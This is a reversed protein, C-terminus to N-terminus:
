KYILFNVFFKLFFVELEKKLHNKEEELEKDLDPSIRLIFENFRLREEIMKRECKM